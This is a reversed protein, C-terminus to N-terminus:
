KSQKKKTSPYPVRKKFWSSENSSKRKETRRESSPGRRERLCSPFAVMFDARLTVDIPTIVTNVLICVVVLVDFSVLYRGQTRNTSDVVYM